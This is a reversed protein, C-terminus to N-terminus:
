CNGTEESGFCTMIEWKLKFKQLRHHCVHLLYTRERIQSGDTRSDQDDGSRYQCGYLLGSVWVCCMRVSQFVCLFNLHSSNFYSSFLFNHRLFSPFHYKSCLIARWSESVSYNLEACYSKCWVSACILFFQTVLMNWNKIKIIRLSARGEAGPIRVSCIVRVNCWQFQFIRIM